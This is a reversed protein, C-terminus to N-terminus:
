GAKLALEVAENTTLSRGILRRDDFAQAGIKLQLAQIEAFEIPNQSQEFVADNELMAQTAGLLAAALDDQGERAAAVALGKLCFIIGRAEGSRRMEELAEIYRRKSAATEGKHLLVNAINMASFSADFSLKAETFLAFSKEYLSLASDYNREDWSVSAANMILKAMKVSNGHLRNIALAEEFRERALPLRGAHRAMIGLNNLTGVIKM